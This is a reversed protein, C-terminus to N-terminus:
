PKLTMQLRSSREVGIAWKRFAPYDEPSVRQIPLNLSSDITLTGDEVSVSREFSGWKEDLSWKGSKSAITASMGEPLQISLQYDTERQGGILLPRTRARLKAYGSAVPERFIPRQIRLVGKSGQRAFNPREFTVEIALPEDHADERRIEFSKLTSGDVISNLVRGLFKRRATKQPTRRLSARVSTARIGNLTITLTGELTGSKALTGALDVQRNTPRFGEAPVETRNPEKCSVCVSPQGVTSLGVAEYMADPHSPSLWVARDDAVQVRVLPKRYKGFEGVPFEDPHQYKSKVLYVSSDIGAIQYVAHLLLHPSGSNSLYTHTVEQGFADADPSTVRQAVKYFLKRVEAESGAEVGDRWQQVQRRLEDSIKLSERVRDAVSRRNVEFPAMQLGNRYYRIWPLYETGSPANSESRPRPSDTRLFHVGEYGAKEYPKAEPPDNQRVFRGDRRDGVIAYESHISSIDSMQFFFQVGEIHTKSVASPGNYKLYVLEVFDGPDLGPMSLTSKGATREPVEVTGDQNITRARLLEAGRPVSIEGHQDIADKTMTRVLTHTLTRSAGDSEYQRAAYDIVYYAEDGVDGGSGEPGVKSTSAQEVHTKAVKQGDRMLERLPIENKITSIRSLLFRSSGNREIADQLIDIAASEGNDALARDALQNWIANSWPIRDRARRLVEAAKESKGQARLEDAYSIQKGASYPNRRAERRRWELRAGNRDPRAMARSRKLDPCRKWQETIEELPPYYSRAAYRGELSRAARCNAADVELVQKWAKEAAETLGQKSLYSAWKELPQINRLRAQESLEGGTGERDFAAGRALELLERGERSDGNRQLLRDAIRLMYVLSKQDHKRAKRLYTMARASRKDSPLEWLTQVQEARLGYAAAFEPHRDNLEKWAARFDGSHRDYYAALATLYVATTSAEGLRDEPVYTPELRSPTVGDGALAVDGSPQEYGDPPSKSFAIGSGGFPGARDGLFSLDFWDRYGPDIALKVLVRHTGPALEVRRLRKGSGYNDATRECVKKGDIWVKGPAAFNGYLWYARRGGDEPAEVTAFTELYYIGRESVNPSLTLGGSLYPRRKERNVPRDEAFWPSLFQEKIRPASEVGFSRDFGRQSWPSLRPTRTWATPFGLGDARFPEPTESAKWRRYTATQGVLSLYVRALPEYADYRVDSLLEATRERYEVVSDRLDYIRAAAFRNLPHSPRTRLMEAYLEFAREADGAWYRIEAEAFTREVRLDREKEDEAGDAEKAGASAEPPESASAQTKAQKQEKKEDFLGPEVEGRFWQEMTRAPRSEAPIDYGGREDPGTACGAMWLCVAVLSLVSFKPLRQMIPQSM